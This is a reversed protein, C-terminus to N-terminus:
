AAYASKMLARFPSEVVECFNLFVDTSDRFVYYIRKFVDPRREVSAVCDRSNDAEIDFIRVAAINRVFEVFDPNAYSASQM